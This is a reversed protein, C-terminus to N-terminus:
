IRKEEEIFTEPFEFFLGCFNGRVTEQCGYM